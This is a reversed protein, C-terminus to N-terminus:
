LSPGPAAPASTTPSAKAKPQVGHMPGIRAEMRATALWCSITSPIM